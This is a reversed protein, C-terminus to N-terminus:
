TPLGDAIPWGVLGVWSKMREPDIFSYYAAIPHRSGWNSHHHWRTFAWDRLFPLCPTTQLHFQTIWAQASQTYRRPWFPATYISKREKGKVIARVIIIIVRYHICISVIVYACSDCFVFINPSAVACLRQWVKHLQLTLQFFRITPLRLPLHELTRCSAVGISIPNRSEKQKPKKNLCMGRTRCFPTWLFCSFDTLKGFIM